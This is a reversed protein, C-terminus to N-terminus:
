QRLKIQKTEMPLPSTTFDANNCSILEHFQPQLSNLGAFVAILNPLYEAFNKENCAALLDIDRCAGLHSRQIQLKLVVFNIAKAKRAPAAERKIPIIIALQTFL